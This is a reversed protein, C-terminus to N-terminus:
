SIIREKANIGADGNTEGAKFCPFGDKVSECEEATPDPPLLQREQVKLLGGTFARLEEEDERSSGYINSSDLYHTIQNM